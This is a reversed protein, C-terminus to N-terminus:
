SNHDINKSSKSLDQFQKNVSDWDKNKITAVDDASLGYAEATGTPDNLYQEKLNADTDLAEIFDVLSKAM